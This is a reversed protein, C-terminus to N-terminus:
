GRAKLAEVEARLAVVEKALEICAVLAANGYVVALTGDDCERVADPLVERLSQASVGVQTEDMDLRDYVGSKVGALRFIFGEGISRWNTKLREDSYATINGAAYVAGGVGVGGTVVVAGTTASTTATANSFTTAGTVTGGALPLYSHTHGSAAADAIGYGALTTPKSDLNAFPIGINASGDFSVGAITRATALKTASDANGATPSIEIYASGSWRYTKNTELAVYIKGAEGTAPFGFRSSYELVDDVYSPLQAAPVKGAADLMAIGNVAGLKANDAPTFGLATTVNASTLEGRITASDKNEVNALGVDSKTLVVAGARGAVSQVPAGASTIFNTDNLFSSLNTPKGSLDAYSGSLAVASLGSSEAKAHVATDLANFCQILRLVDFELTNLPDPLPLNLHATRNDAM